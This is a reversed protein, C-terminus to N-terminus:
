LRKAAAAINALKGARECTIKKAAEVDGPCPQNYCSPTNKANEVLLGDIHIVKLAEIAAVNADIASKECSGPPAPQMVANQALDALKGLRSCYGYCSFTEDPQGAILQPTTFVQLAQLRQLSESEFQAQKSSKPAPTGATTAPPAASAAGVTPAPPASGTVPTSPSAGCGVLATLGALIATKNRANEKM